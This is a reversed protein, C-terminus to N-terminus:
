SSQRGKSRGCQGIEKRGDEIRRIFSNAIKQKATNADLSELPPMEAYFLQSTPYFPFLRELHEILRFTIQQPGRVVHFNPADM